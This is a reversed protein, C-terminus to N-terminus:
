LIAGGVNPTKLGLNNRETFVRVPVVLPMDSALRELQCHLPVECDGFQILRSTVSTKCYDWQQSTSTDMESIGSDFYIWLLSM